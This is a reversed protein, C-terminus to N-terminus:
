RVPSHVQRNAQSYSAVASKQRRGVAQKHVRAIRRATPTILTTSMTSEKPTTTKMVWTHRCGKASDLPASLTKQPDPPLTHLSM